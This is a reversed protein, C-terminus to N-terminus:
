EGNEPLLLMSFKGALPRGCNIDALSLRENIRDTLFLRDVGRFSIVAFNLSFPFLATDLRVTCGTNNL